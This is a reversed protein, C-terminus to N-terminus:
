LAIMDIMKDVGLEIAKESVIGGFAKIARLSKRLIKPSSIKKNLENQLEILYEALEEEDNEVQNKLDMLQTVLEQIQQKSEPSLSITSNDGIILNSNSSTIDGTGTHVTNAYITQNVIKTIKSQEELSIDLNLDLDKNLKIIFDLLTSKIHDIIGKIAQSSVLKWAHITTHPVGDVVNDIYPLVGSPLGVQLMKSKGDSPNAYGELTAIPDAFPTIAMLNRVYSDEIADIPIDYNKWMGGYPIVINAKIIGGRLKRYEPISGGNAYGYQENRLWISFEDNGLLSALLQVKLLITSMSEGTTLAIIINEAIEKKNMM